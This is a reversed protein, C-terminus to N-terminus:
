STKRRFLVSFILFIWSFKPIIRQIKWFSKQKRNFWDPKFTSILEIAHLKINNPNRPNKIISELEALLEEIEAYRLLLLKIVPMTDDNCLLFEKMLIKVVGSKDEQADLTRFESTDVLITSNELAKVLRAIERKIEFANLQKPSEQMM